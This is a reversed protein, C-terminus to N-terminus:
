TEDLLNLFPKGMKLFHGHSKEKNLLNQEMKAICLMENLWKWNFCILKKAAVVSAQLAQKQHLPRAETMDSCGFVAM